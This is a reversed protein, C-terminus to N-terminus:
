ISWLGLYIRLPLREGLRLITTLGLMKPLGWLSAAQRALSKALFNKLPTHRAVFRSAGGLSAGLVGHAGSKKVLPVQDAM